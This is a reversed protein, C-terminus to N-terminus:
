SYGGSGDRIGYYDLWEIFQLEIYIIHRRAFHMNKSAKL